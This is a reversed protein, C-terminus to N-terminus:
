RVLSVVSGGVHLTHECTKRVIGVLVVNVENGEGAFPLCLIQLGDTVGSSPEETKAALLICSALQRPLGGSPETTAGIPAAGLFDTAADGAFEVQFRAKEGYVLLVYPMENVLDSIFLSESQPLNLQARSLEWYTQLGRLIQSQPGSQTFRRGPKFSLIM